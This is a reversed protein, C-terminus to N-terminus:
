LVAFNLREELENKKISKLSNTIEQATNGLELWKVQGYTLKQRTLKKKILGMPTAGTVSAKNGTYMAIAYSPDNENMPTVEYLDVAKAKQKFPNSMNKDFLQKNLLAYEM